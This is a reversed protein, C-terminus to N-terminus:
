IRLSCLDSSELLIRIEGAKEKIEAETQVQAGLEKGKRESM